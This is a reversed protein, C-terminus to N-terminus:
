VDGDSQQEPVDNKIRRVSISLMSTLAMFFTKIVHFNILCLCIPWKKHKRPFSVPWWIKTRCSTSKIKETTSLKNGFCQSFFARGKEGNLEKPWKLREAVRSGVLLQHLLMQLVGHLWTLSRFLIIWMGHSLAGRHQELLGYCIAYIKFIIDPRPGSTRLCTARVVASVSHTITASLLLDRTTIMLWEISEWKKVLKARDVAHNSYFVGCLVHVVNQAFVGPQLLRLCNFFAAVDLTGLPRRSIPRRTLFWLTKGHVRRQLLPVNVASEAIFSDAVFAILVFLGCGLLLAVIFEAFTDPTHLTPWLHAKTGITSNNM